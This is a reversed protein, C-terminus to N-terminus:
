VGEIQQIAEEMTNCFNLYQNINLITFVEKPQGKCGVFYIKKIKELINLLVNKCFGSDIFKRDRMDIIINKQEFEGFFCNKDDLAFNCSKKNGCFCTEKLAKLIVYNKM